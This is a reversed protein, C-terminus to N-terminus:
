IHSKFGTVFNLDLWSPLVIEQLARVAASILARKQKTTSSEMGKIFISKEVITNGIGYYKADFERASM